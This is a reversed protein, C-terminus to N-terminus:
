AIRWVRVGDPTIRTIFETGQHNQKWTSLSGWVQQQTVDLPCLFSDGPVMDNVPYVRPHWQANQRAPPIPVGHELCIM